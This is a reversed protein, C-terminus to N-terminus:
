VAVQLYFLARVPQLSCLTDVEIHIAKGTSFSNDLCLNLVSKKKFSAAYLCPILIYQRREIHTVQKKCKETLIEPAYHQM